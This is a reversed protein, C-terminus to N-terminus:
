TGDHSVYKHLILDVTEVPMPGNNFLQVQLGDDGLPEVRWEHGEIERVDLVTEEPESEIAVAADALTKESEAM